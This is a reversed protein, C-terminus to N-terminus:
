TFAFISIPVQICPSYMCVYTHTCIYETACVHLAQVDKSILKCNFYAYAFLVLICKIHVQFLYACCLIVYKGNAILNIMALQHFNCM